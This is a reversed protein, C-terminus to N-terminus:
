PRLYNKKAKPLWRNIETRIEERSIGVDIFVMDISNDEFQLVADASDLKLVKLNKLGGVNKIFIKHIDETKAEDYLIPEHPNGLFHDVAYVTGSCGSLLAHTSRGKWCGVEVISEMEQATKVADNM